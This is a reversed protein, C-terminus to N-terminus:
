KGEKAVIYDYGPKGCIQCPEKNQQGQRILKYGVLLYNDRCRPCLTRIDKEEEKM